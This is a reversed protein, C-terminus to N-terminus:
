DAEGKPSATKKQWRVIEEKLEELTQGCLTRPLRRSRLRGRARYSLSGGDLPQLDERSIILTDKWTVSILENDLLYIGYPTKQGAQQTKLVTTRPPVRCLIGYGVGLFGVGTFLPLYSCAYKPWDGLPGQVCGYSGILVLGTGVTAM